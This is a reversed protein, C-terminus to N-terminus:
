EPVRTWPTGPVASTVLCSTQIRRPTPAKKATKRRLSPKMSSVAFPKKRATSRRRTTTSSAPLTRPPAWRHIAMPANLKWGDSNAFIATVSASARYKEPVYRYPPIPSRSTRGAIPRTRAGKRRTASWGSRPLAPTNRKMRAPIATTAHTRHFTSANKAADAAAATGTRQNKM